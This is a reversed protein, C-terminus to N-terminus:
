VGDVRDRSFADPVSVHVVSSDYGTLGAAALASAGDLAASRCGVEWVAPWWLAPTGLDQTHLAITQDGHARWRDAGLERAVTHRDIGRQRLMARSLVGGHPLAAAV